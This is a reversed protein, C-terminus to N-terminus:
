PKNNVNEEDYDDDLDDDFFVEYDDEENEEFNILNRMAELEKEKCLYMIEIGALLGLGFALFIKKKM